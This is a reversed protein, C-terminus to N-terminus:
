GIVFHHDVEKNVMGQANPVLQLSLAHCRDLIFEAALKKDTVLDVMSLFLTTSPAKEYYFEKRVNANFM